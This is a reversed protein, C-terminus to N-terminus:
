LEEKFRKNIRDVLEKELDDTVQDDMDPPAPAFMWQTITTLPFQVPILERKDTEKLWQKYCEELVSNNQPSGNGLWDWFEEPLHEANM